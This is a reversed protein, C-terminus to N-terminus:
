TTQYPAHPTRTAPPPSGFSGTTSAAVVTWPRSALEDVAEPGGPQGDRCGHDQGQGDRQM